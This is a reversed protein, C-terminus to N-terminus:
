KPCHTPIQQKQRKLMNLLGSAHMYTYSMQRPDPVMAVVMAVMQWHLDTLNRMELMEIVEASRDRGGKSLVISRFNKMKLLM